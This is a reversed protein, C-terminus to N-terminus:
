FPAAPRAAEATRRGFYVSMQQPNHFSLVKAGRYRLEVNQQMYCFVFCGGLMASAGGDIVMKWHAPDMDISQHFLANQHLEVCAMMGPHVLWVRLYFEVGDHTYVYFKDSANPQFSFHLAM